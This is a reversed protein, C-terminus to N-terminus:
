KATHWAPYFLRVVEGDTSLAHCQDLQFPKSGTEGVESNHLRRRQALETGIGQIAVTPLTNALETIHTCGAVGAFLENVAKRFGKFVNLGVLKQYAETISPCQMMYPANLTSVQVAVITLTDDLTMRLVMNHLAQGVPRVQNAVTIDRSKHDLMQADIDWLGDAREYVEYCYTRRHLLTRADDPTLGVIRSQHINGATTNFDTM